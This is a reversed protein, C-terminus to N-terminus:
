QDNNNEIDAKSNNEWWAETASTLIFGKKLNRTNKRESTTEEFGHCSSCM